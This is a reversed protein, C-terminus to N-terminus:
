LLGNKLPHFAADSSENREGLWALVCEAGRYISDMIRVQQGREPLDTQNICIADIWLVRPKTESRLYQLAVYLNTAVGLKAEGIRINNTCKPDGWAYSLAEYSPVALENEAELKRTILSCCVETGKTGGELVLVRFERAGLPEYINSSPHPYISM